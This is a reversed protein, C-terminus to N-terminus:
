AFVLLLLQLIQVLALTARLEFKTRLGSSSFQLLVCSNQFLKKKRLFSLYYHLNEQGHRNIVLM